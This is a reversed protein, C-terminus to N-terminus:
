VVEEQTTRKVIRLADRDVPDRTKILTDLEEKAIKYVPYQLVHTRPHKQLALDFWGYEGKCQVIYRTSKDREQKGKISELLRRVKQVNQILFGAYVLTIAMM